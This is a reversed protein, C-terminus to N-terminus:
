SLGGRLAVWTVFAAGMAAGWSLAFVALVSWRTSAGPHAILKGRRRATALFVRGAPFLRLGLNIGLFATLLGAFACWLLSVLLHSM